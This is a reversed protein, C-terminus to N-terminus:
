SAPRSALHQKLWAPLHPVALLDALQDPEIAARSLILQAVEQITLPTLAQELLVLADGARVTGPEVVRFYIGPRNLKAFRGAM